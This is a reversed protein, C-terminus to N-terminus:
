GARYRVQQVSYPMSPHTSPHYARSVSKRVFLVGGGQVPMDLPLDPEIRCLQSLHISGRQFEVSVAHNFGNLARNECLSAMGSVLEKKSSLM